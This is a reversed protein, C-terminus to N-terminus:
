LLLGGPQLLVYPERVAEEGAIQAARAEQPAPRVGLRGMQEVVIGHEFKGGVRHDAAPAPRRLFAPAQAELIQLGAVRRRVRSAVVTWTTRWAPEGSAFAGVDHLDPDGFSRRPYLRASV